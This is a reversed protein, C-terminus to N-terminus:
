WFRGKSCENIPEAKRKMVWPYFRVVRIAYSHRAMNKKIIM